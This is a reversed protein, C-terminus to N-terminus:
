RPSERVSDPHRSPSPAAQCEGNGMGDIEARVRALVTDKWEVEQLMHEHGDEHAHCRECLTVLNKEENTGGATLKLKHHVHLKVIADGKAGCKGCVNGDRAVIARRREEWDPPYGRWFSCCRHYAEHVHNRETLFANHKALAEEYKRIKLEYEQQLGPAEFQWRKMREERERRVSRKSLVIAICWLTVILIAGGALSVGDTSKAVGLAIAALIVTPTCIEGFLEWYDV